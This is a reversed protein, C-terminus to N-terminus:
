KLTLVAKGNSAVASAAKKKAPLRDIEDCEASVAARQRKAKAIEARSAQALELTGTQMMWMFFALQAFTTELAIGHMTISQRTTRRFPDFNQKHRGAKLAAYSRALDRQSQLITRVFYDISRISLPQTGDPLPQANIYSAVISWATPNSEYYRRVNFALLEDRTALRAM